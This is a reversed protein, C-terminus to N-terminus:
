KSIQNKVNYKAKRITEEFTNPEDHKIKDKYFTPIGSKFRQINVKEYEIFGVYRLLELFKNEYEYMTM